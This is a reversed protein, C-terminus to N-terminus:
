KEARAACMLECSAVEKGDVLTRAVFLGMGRVLRKQTVELRLQDGPVVPASFRANDIKVLYFLPSGNDGNLRRSIQTLLGATQAMAEVILVGPMVPHGPFHGQFFPENITANKIAVVSVNPVIEIVRDVLLFPYRHPLLEQIQEVNIPLSMSANKESM